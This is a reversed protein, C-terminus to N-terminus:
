ALIAREYITRLTAKKIGHDVVDWPFVEEPDRLRESFFRAGPHSDLFSSAALKGQRAGELLSHSIRRDARSLIAQVESSRVSEHRVVVNNLTRLGNEIIKVRIEWQKRPLAQAWQFPTWPKPVFANVQVGIRGIRGKRRSANMFIERANKVFQVIKMVDEEVETPLGIMFYFRINPIGATVLKDILEFFRENPIQKGIVKKLRNSAVEPALTATKQGSKVILEIIQDNLGEPRISSLSFIGGKNIIDELIIDLEPHSALDSGILGITRKDIIAQDISERFRPYKFHRVPRHIWGGSCFRCGRGCGRNIEVLCSDRFQTQLDHVVAFPPSEKSSLRKAAKVRAPFGQDPRIESLVGDDRFDFSYAEPVYVGDVNSFSKYFEKRDHAATKSKKFERMIAWFGGPENIDGVIEGIFVLDLFDALTEPNLSVSVGGALILPDGSGRDLRLPKIGSDILIKPVIWYDNEFPISFAIVPFHKLPVNNEESLPVITDPPNKFFQDAIFFREPAFFGSEQLQNFLFQFGLNSLGVKRTNPYVLAIPLLFGSNGSVPRKNHRERM